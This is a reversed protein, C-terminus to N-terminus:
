PSPAPMAAGEGVFPALRERLAAPLRRPRGDLGACAHFTTAELILAGTQRCIRYAFNLRVGEARTPWVAISLLDDYRAPAHYRLHCEVVPFVVNQKQWDLFPQGLSRFFETRASELLTLYRAHYIHDGL